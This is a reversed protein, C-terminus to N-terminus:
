QTRKIILIVNLGYFTCLMFTFNVISVIFFSSQMQSFLFMTVIQSQHENLLARCVDSM